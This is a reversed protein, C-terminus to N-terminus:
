VQVRRVPQQKPFSFHLTTQGVRIEDNNNLIARNVRNGNVYTGNRSGMDYLIFVGNEWRIKAHNRSVLADALVISSDNWRGIVDEGTVKLGFTKGRDTGSKVELWARSGPSPPPGGSLQKGCYSCVQAYGEVMRGCGPCQQMPPPPQSPMEPPTFPSFYAQSAPQLLIIITAIDLAVWLVASISALALGFTLVLLVLFLVIELGAVVVLIMQAWKRPGLICIGGTLILASLLLALISFILAFSGAVPLFAAAFSSFGLLALAGLVALSGRVITLIAIVTVATPRQNYAMNM